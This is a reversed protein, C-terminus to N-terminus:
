TAINNIINPHLNSKEAESAARLNNKFSELSTKFDKLSALNM